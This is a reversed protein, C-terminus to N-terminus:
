QITVKRSITNLILSFMWKDMWCFNCAATYETGLLSGRATWPFLVFPRRIFVLTVCGSFTFYTRRRWQWRTRKERTRVYKVTFSMPIHRKIRISYASYIHIRLLQMKLKQCIAEVSAQQHQEFYRKFPFHRALARTVMVHLINGVVFFFVTKARRHLRQRSLM